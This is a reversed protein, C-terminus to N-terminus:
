FKSYVIFTSYVKDYAGYEFKTVNEEGVELLFERGATKTLIFM